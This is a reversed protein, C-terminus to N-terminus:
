IDYKTMESEERLIQNDYEILVLLRKLKLLCFDTYRKVASTL